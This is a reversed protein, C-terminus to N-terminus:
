TFRFGSAVAGPYFEYKLSLEMVRRGFKINPGLLRRSPAPLSQRQASIAGPDDVLSAKQILNDVSCLIRHLEIEYRRASRQVDNFVLRHVPHVFGSHRPLRIAEGVRLARALTMRITRPTSNRSRKMALRGGAFLLAM